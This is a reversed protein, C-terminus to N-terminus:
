NHGCLWNAKAITIAKLKQLNQAKKTHNHIIKDTPNNLQSQCYAKLNTMNKQSDQFM